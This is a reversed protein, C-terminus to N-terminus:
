WLRGLPRQGPASLGRDLFVALLIAGIGLAQVANLVFSTFQFVFAMQRPNGQFTHGFLRFAINDLLPRIVIVALLMGCGVLVPLMVRPLRDKHMVAYVIGAVAVAFMPLNHLVSNFISQLSM